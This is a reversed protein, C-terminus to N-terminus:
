KVGLYKKYEDSMKDFYKTNLLNKHADNIEKKPNVLILFYPAQSRVNLGDVDLNDNPNICLVKWYTINLTKLITNLYKQYSKTEKTAMDIDQVFVASNKGSNLFNNVCMAFTNEETMEDIYINDTEREKKAFPCASMGNYEDRPVELVNEIYDLVKNNINM